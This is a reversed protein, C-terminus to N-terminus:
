LFKFKNAELYENNDRYKKVCLTDIKFSSQSYKDLLPILPNDNVFSMRVLNNYEDSFWYEKRKSYKRGVVFTKALTLTKTERTNRSEQTVKKNFEQMLQDFETDYDYFEPLRYTLPMMDERFIKGDTHIFTNMDERFKTLPKGTLKWMMIKKSYYDRVLAAKDHDQQTIKAFLSKDTLRDISVYQANPKKNEERIRQWTCSLALLDENIELVQYKKVHPDNWDLDNLSISATTLNQWPTASSGQAGNISITNQSASLLQGLGSNQYNAM